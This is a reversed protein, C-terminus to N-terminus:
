SSPSAAGSAPAAPPAHIDDVSMDRVVRSRSEREFFAFFCGALLTMRCGGFLLLLALGLLLLLAACLDLARWWPYRHGVEEGVVCVGFAFDHFVLVLIGVAGGVLLLAIEVAHVIVEQLLVALAGLDVALDALIRLLIDLGTLGQCLDRFSNFVRHSGQRTVLAQLFSIIELAPHTEWTTQTDVVTSRVIGRVGTILHNEVLSIHHLDVESCMEITSNNVTCEGHTKVRHIVWQKLCDFISGVSPNPNTQGNMLLIEFISVLQYSAPISTRMLSIPAAM